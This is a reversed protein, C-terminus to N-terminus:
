AAFILELKGTISVLEYLNLTIFSFTSTTKIALYLTRGSISNFFSVFAGPAGFM